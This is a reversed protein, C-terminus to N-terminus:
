CDGGGRGHSGCMSAGGCAQCQPVVVVFVRFVVSELEAMRTMRTM